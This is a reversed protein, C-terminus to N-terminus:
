GIETRRRERIGGKIWNGMKRREKVEGKVLEWEEKKGWIGRKFSGRKIKVKERGGKPGITGGGGRERKSVRGKVKDRRKRIERKIRDESKRRERVGAKVRDRRGGKKKIGNGSKRREGVRGM